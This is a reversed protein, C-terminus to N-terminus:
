FERTDACGSIKRFNAHILGPDTIPKAIPSGTTLENTNQSSMFLRPSPVFNNENASAHPQIYM